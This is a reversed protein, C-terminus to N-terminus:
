PEKKDSIYEIRIKKLVKALWIGLPIGVASQIWGLLFLVAVFTYATGFLTTQFLVEFLLYAGQMFIAALSFAIVQVWVKKNKLTILVVIGATAAKIVFTAPAYRVYGLVLDALSSGVAAAPIARWGIIICAAFIVADGLHIYGPGIPFSVCTLLMILAAFLGTLALKRSNGQGSKNKKEDLDM